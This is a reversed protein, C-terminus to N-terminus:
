RYKFFDAIICECDKSMKLPPKPPLEAVFKEPEETKSSPLFDDLMYKTLPQREKVRAIAVHGQVSKNRQVQHTIQARRRPPLKKPFLAILFAFLFMALGLIIWGPVRASCRHNAPFALM